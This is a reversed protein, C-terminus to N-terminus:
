TDRRCKGLRHGEDIRIVLLKDAGGSEIVLAIEISDRDRRGGVFFQGNGVPSKSRFFISSYANREPVMSLLSPCM